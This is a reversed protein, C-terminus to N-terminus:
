APIGLTISAGLPGMKFDDSWCLQTPEGGTPENWASIVIGFQGPGSYTSDSVSVCTAFGPQWGAAGHWWYGDTLRQIAGSLTPGDATFVCRYWEGFFTTPTDPYPNAIETEGSLHFAGNGKEIVFRAQAGGDAIEFLLAYDAMSGYGNAAGSGRLFLVLIPAGGPGGRTLAELRLNGGHPDLSNRYITRFGPGDASLSNGGSESGAPGTATTVPDLGSTNWGAPLAPATVSDWTEVFDFSVPAFSGSGGSVYGMSPFFLAGSGGIFIGTATATGYYGCAGDACGSAHTGGSWQATADAKCDAEQTLTVTLLGETAGSPDCHGGDTSTSLCASEYDGTSANLPLTVTTGALDGWLTSNDFTATIHDPLACGYAADGGYVCDSQYHLTILAGCGYIDGLGLFDADPTKARFTVTLDLPCCSNLTYSTDEFYPGNQIPLQSAVTACPGQGLPPRGCVCYALQGDFGFAVTYETGDPPPPFHCRQYVPRTDCASWNCAADFPTDDRPRPTLTVSGFGDDVTVTSAYVMGPVECTHQCCHDSDPVLPVELVGNVLFISLPCPAARDTTGKYTCTAEFTGSQELYGPASATWDITDGDVVGYKLPQICWYSDAGPSVTGLEHGDWELAVSGTTLGEYTHRCGDELCGCLRDVYGFSVECIVVNHAEWYAAFDVEKTQTRDKYTVTVTAGTDFLDVSPVCHFKGDAGTQGSGCNSVNVTAKELPYDCGSVLVNFETVFPITICPQGLPPDGDFPNADLDGSRTIGNWTAEAHYHGDGFTNFWCIRNDVAPGDAILTGNFWVKITADV